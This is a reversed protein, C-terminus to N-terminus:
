GTRYDLGGYGDATDINREVQRKGETQVRLFKKCTANEALEGDKFINAIHQNINQRSTDYIEAIQLETLWLDENSFRVSVKTIGNEDQYLIINNEPKSV